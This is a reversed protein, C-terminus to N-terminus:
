PTIEGHAPELYPEWMDICVSDDAHADRGWLASAAFEVCYLWQPDEGDGRASTDPFPQCGHIRTIRGKAGRAYRPLRTHGRPHVNRARVADDVCYIAPAATTRNPKEADYVLAGVQERTIASMGAVPPTLARGELLEAETIMAHRLLLRQMASLWVEYYRLALYESPPRDECAHRDEDISWPGPTVSMLAFARREWDAHFVPEGAERVVPGFGHMGGMDHIGNM